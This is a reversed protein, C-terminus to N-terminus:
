EGGGIMEACTPAYIPESKEVSDKYEPENEELCSRAWEIGNYMGRFYADSYGTADRCNKFLNILSQKESELEAIRTELEKVKGPLTGYCQSLAAIFTEVVETIEGFYEVKGDSSLRLVPKGDKGDFVFDHLCEVKVFSYEGPECTLATTDIPTDSM